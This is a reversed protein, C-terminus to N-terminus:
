AMRIRAIFANVQGNLMESQKSLEGSASLVQSAAAGTDAAAKTVGGINSSVENTGASAQQVNRAIEQTAAGQEEVASAITTAIENVRAITQTITGIAAVSQGTASQMEAIKASIEETAKATQNALSKVESAVVAFGKGAEGARAAEITANLALLNTQSAIDNILKVVDGIRQAAEALGKIQTNTHTAQNTAQSAIRASEAVQRSIEAISSSLEEAASAVTQVNTSAQESAAAVATSQRSTEKATASMSQATSQLQTSASSVMQVIGKVSSEFEDAMNNMTAKKEAEARQKMAEQEGRLREAEIMNDKFVQVATAMQGIEDKHDRAPIDTATNGGALAKMAGTMAGLPRTIGRALVFALLTSLLVVGATGGAFTLFQNQAQGALTTTYRRLDDALRDEVNKMVDIRATTARFWDAGSIGGLPAGPGADLAIKRMREVTESVAGAMAQRAFDRQAPTAFADFTEFFSNQEAVVGAFVRFQPLTFQGATFGVAGTAREQGAREKAAMYSSYSQFAATVAPERSSKVAERVGDLLRAITTTFYASSEPGSLRKGSIDQRKATLQGVAAVGTEIARRVGPDFAGLDIERLKDHLVAVRKDTSQRQGPLEAALQQGGSGLFVASMGRERQLEHVLTGVDISLEALQNFGSMAAANQREATVMLSGLGAVALLPLAVAVLLRFGIRADRTLLRAPNLTMYGEPGNARQGVM